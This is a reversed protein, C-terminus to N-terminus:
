EGARERMNLSLTLGHQITVSLKRIKSLAFHLIQESVVRLRKQGRNAFLSDIKIEDWDLTAKKPLTPHIKEEDFQHRVRKYNSTLDIWIIEVVQM